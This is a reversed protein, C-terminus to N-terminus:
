FLPPLRVLLLLATTIALVGAITAMAVPMSLRRQSGATAPVIRLVTAALGAMVILVAAKGPDFGGLRVAPGILIAILGIALMPTAVYGLATVILVLLGAALLWPMNLLFAALAESWGLFALLRSVMVSMLLIAVVAVMERGGDVLALKMDGSALSAQVAFGAPVVLLATVAVAETPTMLGLLIPGFLLLLFLGAAGGWALQAVGTAIGVVLLLIGIPLLVVAMQFSAVAISMDWTMGLLVLGTLPLAMLALAGRLRAPAILAPIAVTFLLASSVHDGLAALPLALAGIGGRLLTATLATAVVAGAFALLHGPWYALRTRTDAASAARGDFLAAISDVVGICIAVILLGGAIRLVVDTLEFPLPRQLVFRGVVDATFLLALVLVTLWPIVATAIGTGSVTGDSRDM